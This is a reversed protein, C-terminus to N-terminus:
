DRTDRYVTSHKPDYHQYRALSRSWLPLLKAITENDGSQEAEKIMLGCQQNWMLDNYRRLRKLRGELEYPLAFRYLEPEERNLIREFHPHLAPDLSELATERVDAGKPAAKDAAVASEVMAAYILRNELRIFDESAPAGAMWTTQPYLLVLGLLHEEPMAEIPPPANTAPGTRGGEALRKRDDNPRRRDDTPRRRGVAEQVADEPVRLASAIRQIYHARQVPDGIERIFHALEGVADSKGRATNIDYRASVVGTVHDVLPLAAERLQDWKAPGGESLLLEDPDVGRPLQMIRIELDSRREVGMLGREGRIPISIREAHEQLVESGKLAALDGAMDPDLSLIVRKAIRKLLEAHRDTLATGITGVVNHQGAQHAIVVDMYGEVIVVQGSRQIHSRALDFGYLISSKDFVVSQPSNLYKPNTDGMARGGFGVVVGKADRIPFLLRNRFRDYHGGSDREGVLGADILEQSSYGRGLLFNGLIDFSDPAYGIEFTEITSATLGRKEAYARAAAAGPNTKLLNAYFTAAAACAEKLREKARDEAVASDNRPKLEVGARGALRELAG